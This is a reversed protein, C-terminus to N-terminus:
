NGPLVEPSTFPAAQVFKESVEDAYIENNALPLKKVMAGVRLDLKTIDVWFVNPRDTAEFYYVKNKLDAVTRWITPAVNPRGPAAKGFPVSVERIISFVTAVSKQVDTNVPATQLYYSARVFRDEPTSTGPMFAGDLNKWYENLALQKDYTPENTMVRYQAGHYVVLKGGVYELIANDGSPDSIAMHLAAPDGSPLTPAIIRLEDKALAAAAEKVTAYNDLVYQVWLLISLDKKRGIQTGYDAGALYLLNVNLGETNIGDAAGINYGSAVVSGYKSTWEISNAGARGNKKIGAPFAWLDTKIDEVWDMSRGTVVTHDPATYTFRSCANAGTFELAIALVVISKIIKLKQM